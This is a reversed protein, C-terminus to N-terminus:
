TSDSTEQYRKWVAQTSLGLNQAIHEWTADNDRAETVCKAEFEKVWGRLAEVALLGDIGGFSGDLVRAVLEDVNNGILTVVRSAQWRQVFRNFMATVTEDPDHFRFMAPSPSLYSPFPSTDSMVLDFQAAVDEFRNDAVVTLRADDSSLERVYAALDRLGRASRKNRHDDPYQLALDERWKAGNEFAEALRDQLTSQAM